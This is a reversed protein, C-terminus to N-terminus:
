YCYPGVTRTYPQPPGPNALDIVYGNETHSAQSCKGIEIGRDPSRRVFYEDFPAGTGGPEDVVGVGGVTLSVERRGPAPTSGGWEVYAYAYALRHDDKIDGAGACVKTPNHPFLSNPLRECENGTNFTGDYSYVFPGGATERLEIYEPPITNRCVGVYPGSPSEFNYYITPVERQPDDPPGDDSYGLIHEGAPPTPRCPSQQGPPLHDARAGALGVTLVALAATSVLAFRISRDM